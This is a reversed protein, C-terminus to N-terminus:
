KSVGASEKKNLRLRAESVWKGKPFISLYNQYNKISESILGQNYRCDASWFLADETFQSNPYEKLLRSFTAIAKRYDKLDRSYICALEYLVKEKQRNNSFKLIFAEYIQAAEPYKKSLFLLEALTSYADEIWLGGPYRDMYVKLATEAGEFDHTDNFKVLAIQFLASEKQDKSFNGSIVKSYNDLAGSNDGLLKCCVAAKNLAAVQIQKPTKRNQALQRFLTLATNIQGCDLLADAKQYGSGIQGSIVNLSKAIVSDTAPLQSNKAKCDTKFASEPLLKEGEIVASDGAKVLAIDKGNGFKVIGEQVTLKTRCQSPDTCNKVEVLFRTGVVECYGNPTKIRFLQGPFRKSVKAALNGKTLSFIQKDKKASNIKFVTSEGLSLISRDTSIDVSSKNGTTLETGDSIKSEARIPSMGSSAYGQVSIIRINKSNSILQNIIPISILSLAVLAAIAQIRWDSAFKFKVTNNSQTNSLSSIISDHLKKWESDPKFPTPLSSILELMNSFSRLEKECSKCNKVHSLVEPDTSTDKRDRCYILKKIESCKM